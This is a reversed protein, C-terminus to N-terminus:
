VGTLGGDIQKYHAGLTLGYALLARPQNKPTTCHWFTPSPIALGLGPDHQFHNAPHQAWGLGTPLTLQRFLSAWRITPRWVLVWM